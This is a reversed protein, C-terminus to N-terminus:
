IGIFEGIFNREQYTPSLPPLPLMPPSYMMMNNNSSNAFDPRQKLKPLGRPVQGPMSPLRLDLSRMLDESIPISIFLQSALLILQRLNPMTAEVVGNYVVQLLPCHNKTWTIRPRDLYNMILSRFTGSGLVNSTM